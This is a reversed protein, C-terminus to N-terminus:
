EMPDVDNGSLPPPSDSEADASDGLMAEIDTRDLDEIPQSEPRPAVFHWWIGYDHEFFSHNFERMKGDLHYGGWKKKQGSRGGWALNSVWGVRWENLQPLFHAIQANVVLRSSDYPLLDYDGDEFKPPPLSESTSDETLDKSQASKKRPPASKTAAAPEAKRKPKQKQTKGADGALGGGLGLGALVSENREINRAREQEYASLGATRPHPTTPATTQAPQQQPLGRASASSGIWMSGGQARASNRMIESLPVDDDDDDETDSPLVNVNSQRPVEQRGAAPGAAPGAPPLGGGRNAGPHAAPGAATGAAPPGGAEAASRASYDARVGANAPLGVDGEGSYMSPMDKDIVIPLGRNALEAVFAKDTLDCEAVTILHKGMNCSKTFEHTHNHLIDSWDRNPMSEGTEADIRVKADTGRLPVNPFTKKLIEGCHNDLMAGGYPTAFRCVKWQQYVKGIRGPDTHELVLLQPRKCRIVKKMVPLIDDMLDPTLQGNEHLREGIEQYQGSVVEEHTLYNPQNFGKAKAKRSISNGDGSTEPTPRGFQASLPVSKQLAHFKMGGYHELTKVMGKSVPPECTSLLEGAEAVTFDDFLRRVRPVCNEDLVVALADTKPKHRDGLRDGIAALWVTPDADSQTAYRVISPTDDLAAM